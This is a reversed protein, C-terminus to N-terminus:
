WDNSKERVIMNAKIISDMEQIRVERCRKCDPHHQLDIVHNNYSVWGYEHNDIIVKENTPRSACSMVLVAIVAFLVKKM